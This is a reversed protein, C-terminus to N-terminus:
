LKMPFSRSIRPVESYNQRREGTMLWWWCTIIIIIMIIIKSTIKKCNVNFLRIVSVHKLRAFLTKKQIVILCCDILSEVRLLCELIYIYQDTILLQNM